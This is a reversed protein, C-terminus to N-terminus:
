GHVGVAGERAAGGDDTSVWEWTLRKADGHGRGGVQGQHRQGHRCAGLFNWNQV